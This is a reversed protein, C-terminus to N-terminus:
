DSGIRGFAEGALVFAAWYFPHSYKRAMMELKTSRLAQAKSERRTLHRYFRAMFEAVAGDSVEWLSSVISRAGAYFFVRTLGLAGEENEVYGGSTRCASLVVLEARLRLAAAERAHLFGDESQGEGLSLFLGSRFPVKEDQYAHCAFHIIEYKELGAKRLRDESANEGLYVDTRDKPFFGVISRVEDKSKTLPALEFGQSEYLDQMFGAESLRPRGAARQRRPYLPNGMALLDKSFGGRRGREKLFLLSSCSVGYSVTYRSILFDATSASSAAPLPLTEFPLGSLPGDPIIILNEVRPPLSHLAESLLLNYLRRGAPIGKWEGRPPDSLLGTYAHLSSGLAGMDPLPIVRLDEKTISLLYSQSLGLFYELVATKEDLLRARVEELRAPLPSALGGPEWLATQARSLLRVYEEEKQRLAREVESKKERSLDNRASRSILAAIQHSLAREATKLESEPEDAPSSQSAALTEFFARAKSREIIRFIEERGPPSPGDANQRFILSVLSEYVKAKDRGFGTKLEDLRIRRRVYDIADASNRYDNLAQAVDGQQEHCQGLYFLTEWLDMNPVSAATQELARGLYEGALRPSGRRLLCIGLSNEIGISLAPSKLGKALSLAKELYHYATHNNELDLNALGINNLSIFQTWADAEKKALDLAEGFFGVAKAIDSKSSLILGRSRFARGLQNLDLSLLGNESQRDLDCAAELFSLSREYFGLSMLITGINKLSILEDARNGIKRSLDAAESYDNLARNYSNAGFDYRGVNILCKAQEGLDRIKRAIGLAQQNLALFIEPQGKGLRSFSLQRLCKLEHEPSGLRRSWRVAEELVQISSDVRGASRDAKGQSYLKLIKLGARGERAAQPSILRGAAALVQSYYRESDDPKGLTWCLRGLRTLCAAEEEIKGTERAITVAESLWAFAGEFNGEQWRAEGQARARALGAAGSERVQGPASRIALFLLTGAALGITLPGLLSSRRSSKM